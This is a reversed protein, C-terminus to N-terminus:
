AILAPQFPTMTPQTAILEARITWRVLEARFAEAARVHWCVSDRRCGRFNDQGAFCDCTPHARDRVDTTYFEGAYTKSAIRYVGDTDTLRITPRFATKTTAM